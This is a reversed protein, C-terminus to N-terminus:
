DPTSILCSASDTPLPRIRVTITDLAWIFRPRGFREYVTDRLIGIRPEWPGSGYTCGHTFSDIPDLGSVKISDAPFFRRRGPQSNSPATDLFVALTGSRSRTVRVVFRTDVSREPDEPNDGMNWSNGYGTTDSGATTDALATEPDLNKSSKECAYCLVCLYLIYFYRM